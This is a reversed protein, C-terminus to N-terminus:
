EDYKWEDINSNIIEELKIIDKKFFKNMIDKKNNFSLNKNVILKQNTNDIFKLIKMRLLKSKILPKIIRKLGNNGRLLKNIFKFRPESAPNSKTNEDLILKDIELFHQIKFLTPGIDNIIDKEFILFLINEKSFLDVYREIQKYYRGRDIYSFNNREFEGMPIRESELEIAENFGLGEFGRRVSMLYHSYARDVPNRLIIIIKVGSGLDNFIREPVEEYYLYDPTIVGMIKENEYDGFFTDMWWELGKKYRKEQDFFHAEKLKPLFIDPHKKLIDHLTTTGSKQAGVCIFNPLKKM